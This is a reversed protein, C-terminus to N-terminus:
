KGTSLSGCSRKLIGGEVRPSYRRGGHELRSTVFQSRLDAVEQYKMQFMFDAPFRRANRKVAQVLVKTPVGYLEALDCDLMVKHGRVMYIKREIIEAITIPTM